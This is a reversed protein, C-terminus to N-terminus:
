VNPAFSVSLPSIDAKEGGGQCHQHHWQECVSSLPRSLCSMNVIVEFLPLLFDRLVSAFLIFLCVCEGALLAVSYVLCVLLNDSTCPFFSIVHFLLFFVAFVLVQPSCVHLSPPQLDPPCPVLRDPVPCFSVPPSLWPFHFCLLCAVSFVSEFYFLFCIVHGLFLAQHAIYCSIDATSIDAKEVLYHFQISWLRKIFIMLQQSRSIWLLPM